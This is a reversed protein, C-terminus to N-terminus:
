FEGGLMVVACANQLDHPFDESLGTPQTQYYSGDNAYTIKDDVDHIDGDTKVYMSRSLCADYCGSEEDPFTANVKDCAWQNLTTPSVHSLFFALLWAM